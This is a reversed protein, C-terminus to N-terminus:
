LKLLALDYGGASLDADEPHPELKDGDLCGAVFIGTAGVAIARALDAHATGYQVGMSFGGGPAFVEVFLDSAGRNTQGEVAGQAVGAVFLNGHADVALGRALLREGVLLSSWRVLGTRDLKVLFSRDPPRGDLFEGNEGAVVVDDDAIAVARGVALEAHGGLAEGGLTVRWRAQGDPSFSVIALKRSTERGSSLVRLAGAVVANGARDVAVAEARAEGEMFPVTWVPKGEPDLRVVSNAGVAIAFGGSDAAVGRAGGRLDLERLWRQAGDAQFRAVFSREGDATFGGVLVEGGSAMCVSLARDGHDSGFQRVWALEGAASYRAVLADEQGLPEQDPAAGTTSGAVVVNGTADVAVALGLFSHSRDGMRRLWEYPEGPNRQPIPSVTACAMVLAALTVLLPRMSLAM